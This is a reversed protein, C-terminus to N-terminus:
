KIDFAEAALDSIYIDTTLSRACLTKNSEPVRVIDYCINVRIFTNTITLSCIGAPPGNFVKDYVHVIFHLCMDFTQATWANPLIATRERHGPHTHTHSIVALSYNGTKKKRFIKSIGEPSATLVKYWALLSGSHVGMTMQHLRQVNAALSYAATATYMQGMYRACHVRFMYVFASVLADM